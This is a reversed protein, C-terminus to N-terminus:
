RPDAAAVHSDALSSDPRAAVRRAAHPRGLGERVAPHMQRVGLKRVKWFLEVLPFRYFKGSPKGDLTTEKGPRLGLRACKRWTKPSASYLLVAQEDEDWRLITEREARTRSM